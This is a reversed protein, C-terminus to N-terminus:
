RISVWPPGGPLSVQLARMWGEPAQEFDGGVAPSVPVRRDREPPAATRALRPAVAGPM